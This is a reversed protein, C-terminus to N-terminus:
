IAGTIAAAALSPAAMRGVDGVGDDGVGDHGPEVPGDPATRGRSRCLVAPDIDAEDRGAGRGIARALRVMVPVPATAGGSRAIMAQM